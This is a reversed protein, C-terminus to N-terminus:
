IGSSSSSSDISSSSSSSYGGSSSSSSSSSSSYGGSSSSSSSSYQMSSSSSSSSQSSESSQEDGDFGIMAVVNKIKIPFHAILAPASLEPNCWLTLFADIEQSTGLASAIPATELDMRFCIKGGEPNVEEWDDYSNHQSTYTHYIPTTGTDHDVDIIAQWDGQDAFSAPTTDGYIVSARVLVRDGYFFEPTQTTFSSGRADSALKTDLNIILDKKSYYM